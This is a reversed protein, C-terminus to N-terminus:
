FNPIRYKQFLPVLKMMPPNTASWGQDGRIKIKKMKLGELDNFDAGDLKNIKQSNDISVWM